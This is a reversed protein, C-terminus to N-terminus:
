RDVIFKKNRSTKMRPIIKIVQFDNIMFIVNKTSYRKMRQGVKEMQGNNLM